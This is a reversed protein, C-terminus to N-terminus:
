NPQIRLSVTTVNPWRRVQHSRQVAEWDSSMWSGWSVEGEPSTIKVVVTEVGMHDTISVANRIADERTM